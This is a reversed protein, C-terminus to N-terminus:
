HPSCTLWIASHGSDGLVRCPKTCKAKCSVFGFGSTSPGVRTSAETAVNTPGSVPLGPGIECLGSHLLGLRPIHDRGVVPDPLASYLRTSHDGQPVVAPQVVDPQTTLCAPVRTKIRTASKSTRTNFVAFQQTPQREIRAAVVLALVGSRPVIDRAVRARHGSVDCNHGTDLALQHKITRLRSIM